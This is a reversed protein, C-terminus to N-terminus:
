EGCAERQRVSEQMNAIHNGDDPDLEDDSITEGVAADEPASSRNAM